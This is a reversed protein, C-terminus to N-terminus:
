VASSRTYIVMNIIGGVPFRSTLILLDYQKSFIKCIILNTFNVLQSLILSHMLQYYHVVCQLECATSMGYSGPMVPGILSFESLYTLVFVLQVKM